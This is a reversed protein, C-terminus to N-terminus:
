RRDLPYLYRSDVRHPHTWGYDWVVCQPRLFNTLYEQRHIHYVEGTRTDVVDYYM